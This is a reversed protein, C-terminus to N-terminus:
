LWVNVFSGIKPMLYGMLLQYAMFCILHQCHSIPFFIVDLLISFPPCKNNDMISIKLLELKSVFNIKTALQGYDKFLQKPPDDASSDGWPKVPYYNKQYLISSIIIIWTIM